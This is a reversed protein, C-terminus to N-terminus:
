SKCVKEALKEPSGFLGWLNKRKKSTHMLYKLLIALTCSCAQLTDTIEPRDFNSDIQKIM